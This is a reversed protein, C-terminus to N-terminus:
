VVRLEGAGIQLQKLAIPAATSPEKFAEGGTPEVLEWHTMQVDGKINYELRSVFGLDM